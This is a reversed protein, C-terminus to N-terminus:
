GEEIDNANSKGDNKHVVSNNMLYMGHNTLDNKGIHIKVIRYVGVIEDIEKVNYEALILLRNGNLLRDCIDSSFLSGQIWAQQKDSVYNNKNHCYVLLRRGSLIMNNISFEPDEIQRVYMNLMIKKTFKIYDSTKKAGYVTYYVRFKELFERSESVVYYSMNPNLKLNDFFAMDKQSKTIAMYVRFDTRNWSLRRGVMCLWELVNEPVQDFNRLEERLFKEEKEIM